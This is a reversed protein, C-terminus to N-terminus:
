AAGHWASSAPAPSPGRASFRGPMCREPLVWTQLKQYVVVYFVKVYDDNRMNIATQSIIISCYKYTKDETFCPSLTIFFPCLSTSAKYAAVSLLLNSVPVEYMRLMRASLYESLIGPSFLTRYHRSRSQPVTRTSSLSAMELPEIIDM